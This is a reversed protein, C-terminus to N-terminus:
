NREIVFFEFCLSNLSSIKIEGLKHPCFSVQTALTEAHIQQLLKSEDTGVNAFFESYSLIFCSSSCYYNKNDFYNKNWNKIANSPM